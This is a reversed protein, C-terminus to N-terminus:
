KKIADVFRNMELFGKIMGVDEEALPLVSRPGEEPRGSDYLSLKLRLFVKQIGGPRCDAEPPHAIAFDPNEVRWEGVLNPFVHNPAEDKPVAIYLDTSGGPFANPYKRLLYSDICRSIGNIRGELEALYLSDKDRRCTNDQNVFICDFSNEMASIYYTYKYLNGRRLLIM